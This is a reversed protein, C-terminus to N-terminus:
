RRTSSGSRSSSGGSSRSSSGGGYSRSSSSGSYSSGSSSRSYSSSSSSSRTSYSSSRSSSSSSSRYSSGNSRSSGYSARTASGSRNGSAPRYNSGGRSSSSSGSRYNSKGRSGTSSSPTYRTGGGSSHKYNSSGNRTGPDFVANGGRRTSSGGKRVSTMTPTKKGRSGSTSAAYAHGGNSRSGGRYSADGRNGRYKDRYHGGGHYYSPYHYSYYGGRYWPYDYGWYTYYPRRWWTDWAWDWLFYDWTWSWSFSWYPRHWGGRYWYPYRWSDSYYSSWSYYPYDSVNLYLTYSPSNYKTLRAQYDESNDLIVYNADPKLDISVVDKNGVYITDAYESLSSPNALAAITRTQLEVVDGDQVSMQRTVGDASTYYISNAYGGNGSTTYTSAVCSTLLAAVVVSLLFSINKM